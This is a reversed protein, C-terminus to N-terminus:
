SSWLQISGQKWVRARQPARAHARGIEQEAVAADLPQVGRGPARREPAGPMRGDARETVSGALVSCITGLWDQNRSVKVWYLRAREGAESFFGVGGKALLEDSWSDIRQGEISATVSRGRVDVAVRFPMNRHIMVGLPTEVTHGKRGGQVPYHVMAIVSRPGEGVVKFKMAYYNQKDQARVVWGMGKNEIQGFFELRYDTYGISPRFLALDGMRTYGEPSHSWGATWSKRSAGWAEMGERLTDTATYAARDAIALRVRALPGSDALAPTIVSRSAPAAAQSATESLARDVSAIPNDVAETLARTGFWAGVAVVVAAAIKVM